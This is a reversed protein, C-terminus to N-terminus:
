APPRFLASLRDQMLGDASVPVRSQDLLVVNLGISPVAIASIHVCLCKCGTTKCCDTDNSANVHASAAPGVSDASQKVDAAKGAHDPCPSDQSQTAVAADSHALEGSHPMAHAFEGIVLRGVLLLIM